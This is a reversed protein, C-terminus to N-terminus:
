VKRCTSRVVPANAIESRTSSSAGPRDVERPLAVPSSTRRTRSPRPRATRSPSAWSTEDSGPIPRGGPVVSGESSGLGPECTSTLERHGSGPGSMWASSPAEGIRREPGAGGTASLSRVAFTVPSRQYRTSRSSLTPVAFGHPEGGKTPASNIVLVAPRLARLPAPNGTNDVGHLDIESVEALGVRDLPCVLAAETNWNPEGGLFLRLRGQERLSVISHADESPDPEKQVLGACAEQNANGGGVFKMQAGLIRLRVPAAGPAARLPLESGPEVVLRRTVRAAAFAPVHDNAREREPDSEIGNEYLVGVRPKRAPEDLGGFQDRHLHTVIVHDIRALEARSAAEHIRAADRGGPFGTDVLVSVGAPTV